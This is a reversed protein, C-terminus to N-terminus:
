EDNGGIPLAMPMEGVEYAKEIQPLVWGAVTEGSPLVIHALFESEFETIGSDIAVLKAKIILALARWNSRTAKEWEAQAAVDTRERNKSPTHTFRPDNRDPMPLVFRVQKGEAQFQIVAKERDWGYLFTDAGFRRLIREIETRSRDASVQTDAAYARSM